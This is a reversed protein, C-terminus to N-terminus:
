SYKTIKRFISRYYLVIQLILTELINSIGILLTYKFINDNSIDNNQINQNFRYFPM